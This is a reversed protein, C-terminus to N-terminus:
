SGTKERDIKEYLAELIYQHRSPRPKRNTRVSDIEDLLDLPLRLKVPQISAAEIESEKLGGTEALLAAGSIFEEVNRPKRAVAM